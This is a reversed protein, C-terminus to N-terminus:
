TVVKSGRQPCWSGAAPPPALHGTRHPLCRRRRGRRRRQRAGRGLAPLRWGRRPRVSKCANPSKSRVVRRRRLAQAAPTASAELYLAIRQSASPVASRHQPCSSALSSVCRESAHRVAHTGWSNCVRIIAKQM